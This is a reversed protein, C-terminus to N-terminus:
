RKIIILGHYHSNAKAMKISALNRRVRTPLWEDYMKAEVEEDDKCKGEEEEEEEEDNWSIPGVVIQPHRCKPVVFVVVSIPFYPSFCFLM